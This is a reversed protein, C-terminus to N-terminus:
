RRCRVTRPSIACLSPRNFAQGGTKGPRTIVVRTTHTVTPPEAPGATDTADVAHVFECTAELVAHDDVRGGDCVAGSPVSSRAHIAVKVLM